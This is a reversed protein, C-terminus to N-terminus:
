RPQEARVKEACEPCVGHSFVVGSHSALYSELQGWYGQDDRIKKCWACIPLLGTLQRVEALARTLEGVLTERERAANLRETQDDLTVLIGALAGPQDLMRALLVRFVRTAGGHESTWQCELRDAGGQRFAELQGFFDPFFETLFRPEQHVATRYYWAGPRGTGLLLQHAAHNVNRVTLDPDLLLIPMPISEFAAVYRDRELVQELSRRQLDQVGGSETARVWAVCFAIEVRDFFRGVQLLAQDHEPGDALSERTLALYAPRFAQMLGLFLDLSVGRERHRRAEERGFAAVPDDPAEPGPGDGLLDGAEVARVLAATVGRLAMNWVEELAALYRRPTRANHLADDLLRRESNLFLSPFQTM